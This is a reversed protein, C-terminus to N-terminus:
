FECSSLVRLFRRNRLKIFPVNLFWAEPRGPMMARLLLPRCLTLHSSPMGSEISVFKPLTQSITLSLSAQGATTQPTASDFVVPRSFM